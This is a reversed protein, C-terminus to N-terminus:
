GLLLIGLNLGASEMILFFFFGVVNQPKVLTKENERM